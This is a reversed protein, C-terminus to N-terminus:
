RRNLEAAVTGRDIAEEVRQGFVLALVGHADQEGTSPSVAGEAELRDFLVAPHGHGLSRVGGPIVADYAARDRRPQHVMDKGDDLHWGLESLVGRMQRCETLVVARSAQVRFYASM